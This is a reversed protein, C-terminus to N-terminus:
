EADELSDIYDAIKNFEEDSEIIELTYDDGDEIIRMVTYEEEEEFDDDEVDPIPILCAYKKKDMEIIDIIEFFVKNGHEDVTEIVKENIDDFNTM